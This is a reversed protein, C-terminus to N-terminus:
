LTSKMLLKLDQSCVLEKLKSNKREQYRQNRLGVYSKQSILYFVTNSYESLWNLYGLFVVTFSYEKIFNFKM